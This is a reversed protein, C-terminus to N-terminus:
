VLFRRNESGKGKLSTAAENGWIVRCTESLLQYRWNVNDYEAFCLQCCRLCILSIRLQSTIKKGGPWMHCCHLVWHIAAAKNGSLCLHASCLPTSAGRTAACGVINTNVRVCCYLFVGEMQPLCLYKHFGACFWRPKNRWQRSNIKCMGQNERQPEM